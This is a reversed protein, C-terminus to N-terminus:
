DCCLSTPNALRLLFDCHCRSPACFCVLDYGALSPIMAMLKPQTPLWAEYKDCVEDRTGDRGIVFPNGLPSPRGCCRANPPLPGRIDRKSLVRPIRRTSAVTDGLRKLRIISQRLYAFVRPARSPLEARGTGLGASPCVVTGGLRIHDFAPALDHDIIATIREYDADTWYASDERDPARKTAVGVSNAHGRCAAAQGGRGRRLENDGFLFLRDPHAHLDDSVIRDQFILPM